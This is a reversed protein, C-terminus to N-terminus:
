SAHPFREHMQPHSGGRGGGDEALEDARARLALCGGAATTTTIFVHFWPFLIVAASVVREADDSFDTDVASELAAEEEESASELEIDSENPTADKRPFFVSIFYNGPANTSSAQPCRKWDAETVTGDYYLELTEAFALPTRAVKAKALDEASAMSFVERIALTSECEPIEAIEKLLRFNSAKRLVVNPFKEPDAFPFAPL